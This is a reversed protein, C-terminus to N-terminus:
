PTRSTAGGERVRHRIDEIHLRVPGQVRVLAQGVTTSDPKSRTEFQAGQFISTEASANDGLALEALGKYYWYRADGESFALAKQFAELAEAPRGSWYLDWGAGYANLAVTEDIHRTLTTTPVPSPAPATYPLNRGLALPLLHRYEPPTIKSTIWATVAKRDFMVTKNTFPLAESLQELLAAGAQLEEPKFVPLAGSAGRIRAYDASAAKRAAADTVAAFNVEPYAGPNQNLREVYAKIEASTVTPFPQLATEPKMITVFAWASGGGLLVLKRRGLEPKESLNQRLPVGVLQQSLERAIDARAANSEVARADIARALTTTGYPVEITLFRDAAGNEDGFCGGKTNGSGVDIVLAHARLEKPVLAIATLTAEEAADIKEINKGTSKAVADTLDAFNRAFPVGSSAVVRINEAPVGLEQQLSKSFGDVVAAVDGILVQAFNKGKLRAINAEVTKKQLQLVKLQPTAGPEVEVASAKVGKSGIEIGGFKDSAVSRNSAAIGLLLLL